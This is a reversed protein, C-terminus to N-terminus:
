YEDQVRDLGSEAIDDAFTYDNQYIMKLRRTQNDHGKPYKKGIQKSRELTTFKQKM